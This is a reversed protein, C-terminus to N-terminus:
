THHLGQGVAFPDRTPLEPFLAFDRDRTLLAEVGHAVCVAAIRADHVVGAVVHPRNVFRQLIELFDDTEGIMRNSPSAAWAQFQRWAHDPTTAEDKWIRRNTM